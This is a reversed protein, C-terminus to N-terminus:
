PRKEKGLVTFETRRNMQDAVEQQPLTLREIFDETLVAGEELFEHETAMRRTVTAPQGEGHGVASLRDGSIGREQLYEVVSQTRKFSLERNYEESGLRDTHASLEVAIEPHEQMLAVLEDLGGVSEPRLLASDFDYLIGEMVVPRNFPVMEFDVYVLTDAGRAIAVLERGSHLFGEASTQFLYDVGPHATFRYEGERNTVFRRQDGNSGVVRVIAGPILEDLHDVVIGEVRIAAEVREFSYLYSYGRADGRNSSFFGREGEQLFTIGFDDASSNLAPELGHIQWRSSLPSKVAVFLDLGGMGPHGDSSFYLTFDKGAYPYVENGATNIEPGMNEVSVVRDVGELTGRWIDKGGYGGPRDSVFYLYKGCPSPAPHESSWAPNSEEMELPWGGSWEGNVKRSIFIRTGSFVGPDPQSYTYYMWEGDPSLAPTAEEYDTNVRTELRKPSQWVGHVNTEAYFLDGYKMGTVPSREEGQATERSSSFYLRDGRETLMPSVDSRNSAFGEERQVSFREPEGQRARAMEVGQLGAMALSHGPVRELFDRYATAAEEYNGERHLMRAFHYFQLTDPYNYRIANRYATLARPSQNLMRYNEAMEFAIVGRLARQERPTKQYLKRYTEAAAYFEGRTFYARADALKATGCSLFLSLFATLVIWKGRM